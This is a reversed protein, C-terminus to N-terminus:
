ESHAIRGSVMDCHSGGHCTGRREPAYLCERPHQRSFTRLHASTLRWSPGLVPSAAKYAVGVDLRPEQGLARTASARWGGWGLGEAGVVLPNAQATPLAMEAASGSAPQPDISTIEKVLMKVVVVVIVTIIVMVTIYQDPDNLVMMSTIMVIATIMIMVAAVVMVTITIMWTETIVHVGIVRATRCQWTIADGPRFQLDLDRGGRQEERM